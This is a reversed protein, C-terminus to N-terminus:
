QYDPIGPYHLLQLLTRNLTRRLYSKDNGRLGKLRTADVTYQQVATLFSTNVRQYQKAPETVYEYPHLLPLGACKAVAQIVAEGHFLMDEFRIVLRPIDSEIYGLHFRTWYDILSTYHQAPIHPHTILAVTVNYTPLKYKKAEKKTPVLNPCHKKNHTWNADYSRKCQGVCCFLFYLWSM